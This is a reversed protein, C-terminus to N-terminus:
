EVRAGLMRRLTGDRDLLHHKWAGAAHLVVALILLWALIEHIEHGLEAVTENYAIFKEPDAPDPNAAILELGFLEVGYGGAGSMMVGSVPMLVSGVILVWRITRYLIQEHRLYERIPEPWGNGLRWCVRILAVMLVTVGFSKHLPYLDLTETESMYIGVCLLAIILLAVIWHLAVTVPSLQQKTDKM